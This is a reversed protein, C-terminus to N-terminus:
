DNQPVGQTALKQLLRIQKQRLAEQPSENAITACASEAVHQLQKKSNGSQTETVPKSSSTQTPEMLLYTLSIQREQLLLTM